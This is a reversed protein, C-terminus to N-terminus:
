RERGLDPQNLHRRREARHRDAESLVTDPRPMSGGGYLLFVMVITM